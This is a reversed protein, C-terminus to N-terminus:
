RKMARRNRAAMRQARYGWREAFEERRFELERPPSVSARSRSTQAGEDGTQVGDEQLAEIEAAMLEELKM